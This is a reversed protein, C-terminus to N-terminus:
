GGPSPPPEYGGGGRVQCARTGDNYGDKVAESGASEGGPVFAEAAALVEQDDGAALIKRDALNRIWAGTFCAATQEFRADITGTEAVTGGTLQDNTDLAVGFGVLFVVAADGATERLEHLMPAGFSVVSGARRACLFLPRQAPDLVGGCGDNGRRRLVQLKPVAYTFGNARFVRKWYRVSDEAARLTLDAIPEEGGRINSQLARPEVDRLVAGAAPTNAAPAGDASDGDEGCGGLLGAAAAAGVVLM